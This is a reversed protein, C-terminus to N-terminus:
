NTKGTSRVLAEYTSEVLAAVRSGSQKKITRNEERQVGDMETAISLRYNGGPKCGDDTNLINTKYNYM